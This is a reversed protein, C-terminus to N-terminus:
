YLRLIEGVCADGLDASGFDCVLVCLFSSPFSLFPFSSLSQRGWARGPHRSPQRLLLSLPERRAAPPHLPLERGRLLLALFLRPAPPRLQPCPPEPEAGRLTWGRDRSEGVEAPGPAPAGGDPGSGHPQPPPLAVSRSATAATALPLGPQLPRAPAARVPAGRQHRQGPCPPSAAAPSEPRRKPATLFTVAAVRGM